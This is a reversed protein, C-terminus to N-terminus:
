QFNNKKIENNAHIPSEKRLTKGNPIATQHTCDPLRVKQYSPLDLKRNNKAKDFAVKGSGFDINRIGKGFFERPCPSPRSKYFLSTFWPKAFWSKTLRPFIPKSKGYQVKNKERNTGYKELSEFRLFHTNEVGFHRSKVRFHESKVGVTKQRPL